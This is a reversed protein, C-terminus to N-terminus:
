RLHFFYVWFAATSQLALFWAGTWYRSIQLMSVSLSHLYLMSLSSLLVSIVPLWYPMPGFLFQLLIFPLLLSVGVLMIISLQAWYDSWNKLRLPALTLLVIWGTGAMLLMQVAGRRVSIEPFYDSLAAGFAATVLAAILCNLITKLRKM